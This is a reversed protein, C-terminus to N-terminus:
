TIVLENEWALSKLPMHPSRNTGTVPFFFGIFSIYNEVFASSMEAFNLM